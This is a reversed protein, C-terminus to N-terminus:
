LLGGLCGAVPRWLVPYAPASVMTGLVLNVLDGHTVLM